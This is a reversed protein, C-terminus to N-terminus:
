QHDENEYDIQDNMVYRPNTKKLWNHIACCALVVKNVTELKLTIPKEFIRFKSALIGFANEVVRRARSVRYNYIREEPSMKRRSYPKMLYKKLTFADDDLIVFNEPIELSNTELANYLSCNQFIRYVEM